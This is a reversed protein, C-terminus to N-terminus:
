YKQMQREESSLLTEEIKHEDNKSSQMKAMLDCATMDDKEYM